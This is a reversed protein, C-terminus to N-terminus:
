TNHLCALGYICIKTIELLKSAFLLKYINWFSTFVAPLCFWFWSIINTHITYSSATFFSSSKQPFKMKLHSTNLNPVWGHSRKNSVYYGSWKEEQCATPPSKRNQKSIHFTLSPFPLFKTTGRSKGDHLAASTLQIYLAETCDEGCGNTDKHLYKSGTYELVSWNAIAVHLM